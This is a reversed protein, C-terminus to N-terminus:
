RRANSARDHMWTRVLPWLTTPAERGVLLDIHGLPFTRYTKDHAVSRRFAPFVSPPPALDDNEGAIILLPLDLAEFATSYETGKSALKKKGAWQFMHRMEGVGARDFAMSLHEDLVDIELAGKHWGRLPLPYLPSEAFRSMLKLAVGVPKLILPANAVPVRGFELMRFLLAITSLSFSGETFHYPSGISVIGAVRDQIQPAAAYSVLGGLSHGVLFSKDFGSIKLVEGLANPLDEHIYDDVSRARKGGFSRSRGHGRLDVNFVDFGAAALYSSFSRSPLHWAYRNQGFGHILLVPALCADEHAVARKRVIALPCQGSTVVLEKRVRVFTNRDIRQELM